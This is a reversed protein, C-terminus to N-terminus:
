EGGRSKRRRRQLLASAVVLVTSLLGFVTGLVPHRQALDAPSPAGADSWSVLLRAGLLTIGTALAAALLSRLWRM